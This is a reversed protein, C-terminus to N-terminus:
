SLFNKARRQTPIVAPPSLARSRSPLVPPSLLAGGWARLVRFNLCPSRLMGKEGEFYILYIFYDVEWSFHLAAPSPPKGRTNQTSREVRSAVWSGGGGAVPCPGPPPQAPSPCRSSAPPCPREPAINPFSNGLGELLDTRFTRARHSLSGQPSGRVRTGGM